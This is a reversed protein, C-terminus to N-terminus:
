DRLTIPQKHVLQLHFKGLGTSQDGIPSNPNLQPSYVRLGIAQVNPGNIRPFILRPNCLGRSRFAAFQEYLRCSFSVIEKSLTHGYLHRLERSIKEQIFPGITESWGGGGGGWRVGWGRVAWGGREMEQGAVDCVALQQTEAGGETAKAGEQENDGSRSRTIALTSRWETLTRPASTCKGM